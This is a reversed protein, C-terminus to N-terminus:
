YVIYTEKLEERLHIFNDYRNRSILGDTVAKLVACGPESTHTCDNFRCQLVHPAIDRFYGDLEDPEVDWVSLSRIGPTDAIYGGVDLKILVSDRTTHTGEQTTRSVERVTRGLGPQIKNLLSTKGVGSPGSFVSIRGRLMERLADVGDGRLASTYLIPYGMAVYPAFLAEINGPDELDIKNVVIVLQEISSREGTVILRDLMRLNPTPQAAALIFFAQEANAVIIHEREAQGAGRKGTTRLARSLASSREHVTEIVGQLVDTGEDEIISIEVRDGIAAIDSAQAEEKLRGRLQCRYITGDATEVWYFGSQEKVVLGELHQSSMM